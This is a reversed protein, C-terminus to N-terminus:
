PIDRFSADQKSTCNAPILLGMASASALATRLLISRRQSTFPAESILKKEPEM